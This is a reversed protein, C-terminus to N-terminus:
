SFARRPEPAPAGATDCPPPRFGGELAKKRGGSPRKPRRGGALSAPGQLRAHLAAHAGVSSPVRSWNMARLRSGAPAEGRFSGCLSRWRGVVWLGWRLGGLGVSPKRPGALLLGAARGTFPRSPRLLPGAVGRSRAGAGRAHFAGCLRLVSMSRLIIALAPATSRPPRSISAGTEAGSASSRAGGVAYHQALM